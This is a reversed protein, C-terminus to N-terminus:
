LLLPFHFTTPKTLNAKAITNSQKKSTRFQIFHHM